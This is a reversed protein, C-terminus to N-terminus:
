ASSWVGQMLILRLKANSDDSSERMVSNNHLHWAACGSSGVYALLAGLRMLSYMIAVQAYRGVATLRSVASLAVRLQEAIVAEIQKPTNRATTFDLANM